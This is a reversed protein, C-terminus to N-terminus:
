KLKLKTDDFTVASTKTTYWFKPASTDNGDRCIIFVGTASDYALHNATGPALTVAPTVTTASSSACYSFNGDLKFGNPLETYVSLNGDQGSLSKLSSNGDMVAASWASPGVTRNLTGVFAKAVGEKAQDQMGIMRPLAVASLIGLIVIVFILEIM